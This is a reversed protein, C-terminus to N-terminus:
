RAGLRFKETRHQRSFVEQKEAVQEGREADAEAAGGDDVRVRLRSDVHREIGNRELVGLVDQAGGLKQAVEDGLLDQAELVCMCRRSM